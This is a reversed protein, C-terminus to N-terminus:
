IAQHPDTPIETEWAECRWTTGAAAAAPGAAHWRLEDKLLMTLTHGSRPGIFGAARYRSPGICGVVATAASSALARSTM